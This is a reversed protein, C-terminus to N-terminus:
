AVWDIDPLNNYLYETDTSNQLADIIIPLPEPWIEPFTAEKEDELAFALRAEPPTFQADIGEKNGRPDVQYWGFDDLHIANFGHLCYPAGDSFTSLRQYCFGCPINNARLLATLLHSKAYCFGTGHKLVESASCTVPNLQYDASHKINDRVWEFCAKALETQNHTNQKLENALKLVKPHQFNIINSHALYQKM